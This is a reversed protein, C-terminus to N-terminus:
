LAIADRCGIVDKYIEVHMMVGNGYKFKMYDKLRKSILLQPSSFGIVNQFGFPLLEHIAWSIM